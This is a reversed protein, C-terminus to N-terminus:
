LNEIMTKILLSNENKIPHAEDIIIFRWSFHRFATKEKIAMEFCIVYIYM